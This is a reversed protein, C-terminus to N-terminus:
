EQLKKEGTKKFMLLKEREKERERGGGGEGERGKHSM